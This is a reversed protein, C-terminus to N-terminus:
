KTFRVTSSPDFPLYLLCYSMCLFLLSNVVVLLREKGFYLLYGVPVGFLVIVFVAEIALKSKIILLVLPVLTVLAILFVLVGGGFIRVKRALSPSHQLKVASNVTRASLNVGAVLIGVSTIFSIIPVFPKPARMKVLSFVSGWFM